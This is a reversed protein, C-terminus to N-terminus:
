IHILSLIVATDFWPVSNWTVSWVHEALNHRQRKYPIKDPCPLSRLLAFNSAFSPLTSVIQEMSAYTFEQIGHLRLAVAQQCSCYTLGSGLREVCVPRICKPGETHISDGANAEPVFGPPSFPCAVFAFASPGETYISDGANAELAFGPPALPGM